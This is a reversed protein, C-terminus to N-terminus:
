FGQWGKPGEAGNTGIPVVLYYFVSGITPRDSDSFSSNLASGDLDRSTVDTFYSDQPWVAPSPIRPRPNVARYVRYRGATPELCGDASPTWAVTSSAGAKTVGVGSVQSVPACGSACSSSECVVPTYGNTLRFEDINWGCYVVSTDSTMRFRVQCNAHGAAWQSLDYSVSQWASDSMDLGTGSPNGWVLQWASGDWVEITAHDFQAQEVGLWRKFSLQVNSVHSCDYIPSTASIGGSLNSEYNGQAAGQGTLDVGLVKTGSFAAAPDPGGSGSGATGGKAQPAAIQWEGTLTWGSGAEFGDFVDPIPAGNDSHLTLAIGTNTTHYFGSNGDIDVTFPASELCAANSAVKFHFTASATAGPALTGLSAAFSGLVVRPDTTSLVATTGASAATGQNQFNVTLAAGEGADASGDHDSCGANDADTLSWSTVAVRPEPSLAEGCISLDDIYFGSFTQSGDSQFRFRLYVTSQRDALASIDIRYLQWSNDYGFGSWVTTFNVGDTSLDVSALDYGVESNLWRWFRLETNRLSTLNFPTTILKYDAGNGYSGTLNTGFVKTGTHGSPPGGAHPSPDNATGPTGYAWGLSDSNQITWGPNVDLPVSIAPCTAVGSSVRVQFTSSAACLAQSASFVLTFTIVHQDPTGPALSFAFSNSSAATGGAGLSPWAGNPDTINVYPDSTSLVGTLGSVAGGTAYVTVPMLVSEGPDAQGDNDGAGDQIASSLVEVAFSGNPVLRVERAAAKFGVDVPWDQTRYGAKGANLHWLGPTTLWQYRGFGPESVRQTEGNTFVIEDIGINAQLAAGTCADTTHGWISSRDVRDLLFQWGARNRTVTPTRWTAYDPQFGQTASNAEITVAATGLAGYFWMDSDGDVAYLLEWPTGNSYYGDNADNRIRTAMDSTIDRFLRTENNTTSTCGYPHIVLESYTHYSLAMVPRQAQALAMYGQTEPESGASPGRYTDSSTTGSSGACFNWHFPYNRNLDVGFTGDGNNRRNKRWNTSSTFVTNAGDPNHNPIVWIERGNVWSQVQPDTAYRTLLYDIIDMAIDTTMVERAHHQGVYFIVPEDEDTSVNDSIKMAWESRGEATTAVFVKKALSPYNTQYFDLRTSVEGPDLYDSLAEPAFATSTWVVEPHFGADRLDQFTKWDGVFDATSAKVDIGALDLQMGALVPIQRAPDEVKVRLIYHEDPDASQAFVGGGAAAALALVLM